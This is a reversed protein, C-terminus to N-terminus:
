AMVALFQQIREVGADSSAIRTLKGEVQVLSHTRGDKSIYHKWPKGDVQVIGEEYGERTARTIYPASPAVTQNLAFYKEDDSLFGLELTEGQVGRGSADNQGPKLWSAKTAQWGAPLEKPAMVEFAKSARAQAVAGKWDADPVTPRDQGASQFFWVILALPIMFVAMTLFMDRSSSRAM